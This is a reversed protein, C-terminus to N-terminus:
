MQFLTIKLRLYEAPVGTDPAYLGAFQDIPATRSDIADIGHLSYTEGTIALAVCTQHVFHIYGDRNDELQFSMRGFALGGYNLADLSGVLINCYNECDRREVDSMSTPLNKAPNWAAITAIDAVSMVRSASDSYNFIAESTNVGASALIAQVTENRPDSTGEVDLGYIFPMADYNLLTSPISSLDPTTANPVTFGFVTEFSLDVDWSREAGHGTYRFELAENAFRVKILGGSSPEKFMFARSGGATQNWFSSITAVDAQTLRVYRCNVTASAPKTYRPRTFAYGGDVKHRMVPNEIKFSMGAPDLGVGQFQDPFTLVSM